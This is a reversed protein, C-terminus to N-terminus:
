HSRPARRGLKQNSQNDNPNKFRGIWGDPYTGKFWGGHYPGSSRGTTPLAMMPRRMGFKRRNRWNVGAILLLIVVGLGTLGALQWIAETPRASVGTQALFAVVNAREEPLLPHATWVAKMTPTPLGSVFANVGAAGGMRTAVTTLDPGLAGGGLAGIGGTSHCAMCPPGGNQFRVVGTFLEKGTDANGQVAPAAAPASEAAAGGAAAADLYAIINDVDGKSLGLNPMAMDHYQHMLNVAYEDKKALVADPATIWQELWDHPRRKTVDKLDPGVLPGKGITHCASCTKDQFLQKGASADAANAASPLATWMAAITALAVVPLVRRSGVPKENMM